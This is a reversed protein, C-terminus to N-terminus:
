SGGALPVSSPAVGLIAAAVDAAGAQTFGGIIEFSDGPAGGKITAVAQVFGTLVVAIQSNVLPRAIKTLFDNDRFHVKVAFSTTPADYVLTASDVSTGSVLTPGLLYCHGRLRDYLMESPNTVKQQAVPTVLQACGQPKLGSGGQPTIAQNAPLILKLQRFELSERPSVKTGLSAPPAVTALPAVPKATSSCGTALVVVGALAVLGYRAAAYM